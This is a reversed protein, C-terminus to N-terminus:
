APVGAVTRAAWVAAVHAVALQASVAMLPCAALVRLWSVVRTM